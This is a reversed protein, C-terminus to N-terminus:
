RQRGCLSLWWLSVDDLELDPVSDVVSEIQSLSERRNASGKKSLEILALTQNPDQIGFYIGQFRRLIFKKSLGVESELQDIIDAGNFVSQILGDADNDKLKQCFLKLRPDEITCDDWTAVLFDDSGFKREFENYEQRAESKDPLWQLVDETNTQLRSFGLLCFVISGLLLGVGFIDFRTM